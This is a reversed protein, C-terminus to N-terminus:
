RVWWWLSCTRCGDYGFQCGKGLDGGDLGEGKMTREAEVYGWRWGGAGGYGGLVQNFFDRGRISFWGGLNMAMAGRWLRGVALMVAVKGYGFQYDGGGLDSGDFRWGREGM